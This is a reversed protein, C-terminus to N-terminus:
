FTVLVAGGTFVTVGTGFTVFALLLVARSPGCRLLAGAAVLWAAAQVPLVWLARDARLLDGRFWVDAALCAGLLATLLAARGLTLGEIEVIRAGLAVLALLGLFALGALVTRSTTDPPMSMDVVRALRDFFGEGHLDPEEHVEYPGVGTGPVPEVVHEAGPTWFPGDTPLSRPTVPAGMVTRTPKDISVYRRVIRRVDVTVRADEIFGSMRLVITKDTEKVVVGRLVSGNDLVLVDEAAARRGAAALLVLVAALALLPRRM